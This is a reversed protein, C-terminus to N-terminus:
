FWRDGLYTNVALRPGETVVGVAEGFDVGGGSHSLGLDDRVELIFRPPAGVLRWPAGRRLGDGRAPLPPTGKGRGAPYESLATSARVKPHPVQTWESLHVAM